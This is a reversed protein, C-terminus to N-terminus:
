NIFSTERMYDEMTSQSSKSPISLNSCSTKTVRSYFYKGTFKDLFSITYCATHSMHPRYQARPIINTASCVFEIGGNPPLSASTIGIRRPYHRRLFCFNQDSNLPSILQSLHRTCMRERPIEDPLLGYASMEPVGM